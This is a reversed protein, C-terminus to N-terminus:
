FSFRIGFRLSERVVNHVTGEIDNSDFAVDKDWFPFKNVMNLESTTEQSFHPGYVRWESELFLKVGKLIQVQTGINGMVGMQVNSFRYDLFDIDWRTLM